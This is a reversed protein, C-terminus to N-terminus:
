ELPSTSTASKNTSTKVESLRFSRRTGCKSCDWHLPEDNGEQSSLRQLVMWHKCSPCRVLLNEGVGKISAGKPRLTSFNIGIGGGEGWLILANKFCEGIEERSDGIPIHYCNFLSGRERGVNRLIRGGPIFQGDAIMTIYPEKGGVRVALEDWSNEEDKFYRVKAITLADETLKM